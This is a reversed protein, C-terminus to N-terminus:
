GHTRRCKESESELQQLDGQLHQYVTRSTEACGDDVVNYPTSSIWVCEETRAMRNQCRKEEEQQGGLHERRSFLTRPMRYSTQSSLGM